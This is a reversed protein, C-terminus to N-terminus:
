EECSKVKLRSSFEAFDLNFLKDILFTRFTGTGRGLSRTDKAAVEGCIGMYACSAVAALISNEMSYFAGILTTSMCGSGTIRTMMADGNSVAFVSKGDTIVDTAGSSVVTCSHRRALAVANPCVDGSIGEAELGTATRSESLLAAIESGNGRVCTVLHSTLLELCARRRLGSASVGVPDVVVPHGLSSAAKAARTMANFNAIGGLNLVLASAGQQIDEVEDVHSAMIARAGVALLVNACDNITVPNTICHVLPRTKSIKEHIKWLDSATM